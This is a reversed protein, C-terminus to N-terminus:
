LNPARVTAQKKKAKTAKKAIRREKVKKRMVLLDNKTCIYIFYLNAPDDADLEETEFSLPKVVPM